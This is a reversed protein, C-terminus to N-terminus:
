RLSLDLKYAREVERVFEDVAGTGARLAESFPSTLNGLARELALTATGVDDLYTPSAVRPPAGVV